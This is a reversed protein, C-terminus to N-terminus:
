LYYEETTGSCVLFIMEITKSFNGNSYDKLVLRCTGCLSTPLREDDIDHGSVVFEEILELQESNIPRM